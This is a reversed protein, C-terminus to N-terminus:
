ATTPNGQTAFATFLNTGTCVVWVCDYQNTSTLTGGASTAATGFHLVQSGSMQIVWGGSSQGVVIYYDNITPSVPVTLTVLSAGNQITYGNFPSMAVSGSSQTNFGFPVFGTAPIIKGREQYIWCSTTTDAIWIPKTINGVTVPITTTVLGPTADSLFYVSGATLGSFGSAHGDSTIIFTNVDVVSTVVGVVEATVTSNAQALAYTTGNLYLAQQISFGHSAQTVTISTNSSSGGSPTAWVGAGNWFTTASASTGSNLNTVPLNGTVGNALNVQNWSPNNSSGQNSLYRTADADIPLTSLVNAASAYLMDGQNYGMLGTGGYQTGVPAGQWTGITITGVSTISAQGPYTSLISVIVNGTTPTALITSGDGSVSDVIGGSTGTYTFQANVGNQLGVPVDGAVLSGGAIFQSFKTSM